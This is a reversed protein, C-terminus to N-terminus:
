EVVKDFKVNPLILGEIMMDLPHMKGYFDNSEWAQEEPLWNFWPNFGLIVYIRDSTDTNDVQLQRHVINTDWTYAYGKDLVRPGNKAIEMAYAKTTQIPIVVRTNHVIPEDSHWTWRDNGSEYNKDDIRYDRFEGRQWAVRSRLVQCNASETITKIGSEIAANTWDTFSWTDFYADKEKHYQSLKEEKPLEISHAQEPTILNYRVLAKIVEAYGQEVAIRTLPLLHQSEELQKYIDEGLNSFIFWSIPSPMEGMGASEAQLGQSGAYIPNSKISWGGYYSGRNLYDIGENPRRIKDHETRTTKENKNIWGWWKYKDTVTNVGELLKDVDFDMSMRILQKGDHKPKLTNMKDILKYNNEIWVHCPRNIPVEEKYIKIRSM